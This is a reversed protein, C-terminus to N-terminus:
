KKKKRSEITKYIMHVFVYENSDSIIISEPRTIHTRLFENIEDFFKDLDAKQNSSKTNPYYVWYKIQFM